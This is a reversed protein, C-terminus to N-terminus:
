MIVEVTDKINYREILSKSLRIGKSNGIKVVSIDMFMWMLTYVFNNIKNQFVFLDITDKQKNRNEYQRCKCTM